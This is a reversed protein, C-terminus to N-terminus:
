RHHHTKKKARDSVLDPRATWGHQLHTCPSQTPTTFWWLFCHHHARHSAAVMDVGNRLLTDTITNIDGHAERVGFVIPRVLKDFQKSSIWSCLQQRSRTNAITAFSSPFLTTIETREEEEHITVSSLHSFNNLPERSKQRLFTQACKPTRTELSCAVVLNLQNRTVKSKIFHALRAKRWATPVDGTRLIWDLLLALENNTVEHGAKWLEALIQDMCLAQQQTFKNTIVRQM